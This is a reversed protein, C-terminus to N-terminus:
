LAQIVLATWYDNRLSFSSPTLYPSLLKVSFIYAFPQIRTHTLHPHILIGSGLRLACAPGASLWLNLLLLSFHNFTGSLMSPFM